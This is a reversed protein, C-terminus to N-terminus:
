EFSEILFYSKDYRNCVYKYVELEDNSIVGVFEAVLRTVRKRFFIGKYSINPKKRSTCKTEDKISSNIYKLFISFCYNSKIVHRIHNYINYYYRRVNLSDDEDYIPDDGDSIWRNEDDTDEYEFFEYKYKDHLAYKLVKIGILYIASVIINM